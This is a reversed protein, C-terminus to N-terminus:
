MSPYNMEGADVMMRVDPGIVFFPEHEPFDLCTVNESVPSPTGRMKYHGIFLPPQERGYSRSSVVDGPPGEPLVADPGLSIMADEWGTFDPGGWWRFRGKTRWHGYHDSFGFDGEPLVIEPGKTVDLIECALAGKEKGLDHLLDNDLMTLIGGHALVSPLSAMISDDGWFAHAARFDGMDARLPLTMFWRIVDDAEPSGLPAENLFSAHQRLNKESRKRHGSHLMIANLEHNGMLCIAEGDDVMSRVVTIVSLNQTGNDILDGLFLAKVGEPHRYGEKHRVFGATRMTNELRSLDAHLDPIITWNM